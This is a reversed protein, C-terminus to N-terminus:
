PDTTSASDGSVKKPWIVVAAAWPSDSPEILGVLSKDIEHQVLHIQSVDSESLALSEKFEAPLQWMQEQQQTWDM